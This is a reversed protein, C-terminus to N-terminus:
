WRYVFFRVSQWKFGRQAQQLTEPDHSDARFLIMKQKKGAFSRYFAEKYAPYGGGFAGGPLDISIITAEPHALKSFLFLSGGNATGIELVFRPKRQEVLKCLALIESKVQKIWFFRKWRAGYILDVLQEADLGESERALLPAYESLSM